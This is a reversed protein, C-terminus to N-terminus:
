GRLGRRLSVKLAKGTLPVGRRGPFDVRLNGRWTSPAGDRDFTASGSFPAPLSVTATRLALHTFSSNLAAISVSREIAVGRRSESIKAEIQTGVARKSQVLTLHPAAAGGSIELVTGPRTELDKEVEEACLLSLALGVSGKARSADVTTLGAPHFSITGEYYGAVSSMGHNCGFEAASMGGSVPHFVVSIQGYQGLDAEISGEEVVGPFDYTVSDRLTAVRVVVQSPSDQPAVGSVEVSYGNSGSLVFGPPPNTPPTNASSAGAFPVVASSILCITLLGCIMLLALAATGLRRSASAASAIFRTTRAM